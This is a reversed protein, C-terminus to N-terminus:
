LLNELFRVQPAPLNKVTDIAQRKIDALHNSTQNASSDALRAQYLQGLGAAYKVMSDTAAQSCGGIRAGLKAATQFLSTSNEGAIQAEAINAIARVMHEVVYGLRLSSALKIALAYYYDATVLTLNRGMIKDQADMLQNLALYHKDAALRLLELGVAVPKLKDFRYEGLSASVLFLKALPLEEIDRGQKALLNHGTFAERLLQEKALAVDRNILDLDM